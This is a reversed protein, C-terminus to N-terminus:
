GIIAVVWPVETTNCVEEYKKKLGNEPVRPHVVNDALLVTTGPVEVEHPIAGELPYLVSMPVEEPAM